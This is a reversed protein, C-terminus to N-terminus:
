RAREADSRLLLRLREPDAGPSKQSAQWLVADIAQEALTQALVPPANKLDAQAIFDSLSAFPLELALRVRLDVEALDRRSLQGIGRLVSAPQLTFLLPKFASPFRLNASQWNALIYDVPATAAALNTTIAGLILDPESAHYAASSLIVAPRVKRASLDTFPFPLLVIDGRHFAM